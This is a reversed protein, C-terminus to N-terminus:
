PSEKKHIRRAARGMPMGVKESLRFQRWGAWNSAVGDGKRLLLIRHYRTKLTCGSGSLAVRALLGAFTADAFLLPASAGM